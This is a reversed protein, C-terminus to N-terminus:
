GVAEWPWHAPSHNSHQDGEGPDMRAGEEVSSQPIDQRKAAVLGEM